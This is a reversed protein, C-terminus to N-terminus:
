KGGDEMYEACQIGPETLRRPVASGLGCPQANADARSAQEALIQKRIAAVPGDTDM